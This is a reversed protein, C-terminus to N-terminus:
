GQRTDRNTSTKEPYSPLQVSLRNTVVMIGAMMYWFFIYVSHSGMGLVLRILTTIIVAYCVGKLVSYDKISKVIKWASHLYKKLFVFWVVTGIIGLDGMLEGYHNHAWLGWGFWAKRAVPYCGPGVGLLPRKILMEFGNQLGIFRSQGSSDLDGTFPKLMVDFYNSQSSFPIAIAALIGIGILIPRDNSFYIMCMWLVIVGVFGGRSGSIVVAYICVLFLLLGILKMLLKTNRVGLFWLIPMGQLTLNALAVHGAGMGMEATAYNVRSETLSRVINGEFFNYIATYAILCTILAFSLLFIEIDKENDILTVIMIFFLFIKSFEIMWDWSRGFDLAQLMSVIMVGYLIFMWKIIADERFRIPQLRGPSLMMVIVILIGVLLEVRLEGLEPYYAGPRTMMVILYSILGYFPRKFMALLTLGAFLVLMLRITDPHPM